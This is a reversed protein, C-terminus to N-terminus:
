VEHNANCFMKHNDDALKGDGSDIKTSKENFIVNIIKIKNEAYFNFIGFKLM